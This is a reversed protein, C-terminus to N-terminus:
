ACGRRCCWSRLPAYEQRHIHRVGVIAKHYRKRGLGRLSEKLAMRPGELVKAGYRRADEVVVGLDCHRTNKAISIGCESSQKTIANGASVVSAKRSPWARAKSYKPATGVRM